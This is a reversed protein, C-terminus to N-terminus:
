GDSVNINDISCAVTRGHQQAILSYSVLAASGHLTEKDKRCSGQALCHGLNLKVVIIILIISDNPLTGFYRCGGETRDGSPYSGGLILVCLDLRLRSVVSVGGFGSLM